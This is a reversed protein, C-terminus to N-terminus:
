PRLRWATRGPAFHSLGLPSNEVGDLDRRVAWLSDVTFLFACPQEEALRRHIARFLELRRSADMERRAAEMLRDAEPDAFGGSNGGKPPAQSSHFADYPDLNPPVFETDDLCADFEGAEVRARLAAWELPRIRLEIGLRAYERQLVEAIRGSVNGGAPVLLEFRFRGAPGVLVGDPGRLYGARALSAAAAPPAYPLPTVDPANEPVGAPYPGSIERAQGAFLSAVIARRPIALALARRVTPDAFLPNRCNWILQSVALRPAALTRFRSRFARDASLRAAAEHPIRFEDLEGRLGARVWGAPEPLIRFLVRAAGESSPSRRELLLQRGTEWRVLRYPGSGVPRRGFDGRATYANRPVIPLNFALLRQSYADRFRVSVTRPGIERVEEVSEFDAMRGSAAGVPGRLREITFRVDGSRVPRGDDFTAQPDLEFRYTRGDSSVSWSRALGPVPSLRRDLAVLPTFLFDEVLLGAGDTTALPDLTAPEADLHEQLMGDRFAARGRTCGGAIGLLLAAFLPLARRM